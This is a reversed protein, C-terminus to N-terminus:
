SCLVDINSWGYSVETTVVGVDNKGIEHTHENLLQGGLHEYIARSRANDKLVDLYLSTIGRAKFARAVAGILQRGIGKGRYNPLVHLTSLESQYSDKGRPVAYAFGVIVGAENEAVYITHDGDSALLDRWDEDRDAYTFEALYNAPLINAYASRWSDLQVKGIGASDAITAARIM